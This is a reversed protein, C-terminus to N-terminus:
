CYTFWLIFRQPQTLLLINHSSCLTCWHLFPLHSVHFTMQLCIVLLREPMSCWPSSSSIKLLHDYTKHAHPPLPSLASPLSGFSLYKFFSMPSNAHSFYLFMLLFLLSFPNLLNKKWFNINWMIQHNVSYPAPTLFCSYSKWTESRHM